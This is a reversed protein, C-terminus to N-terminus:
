EVIYRYEGAPLSEAERGPLELTAICNAPVKIRYEVGNEIKEWASSVEGYISQYSFSAHRVQGGPKPAIRFENEGTITIGCMSEFLWQCMAGKSYHNRSDVATGHSTAEWSEWVTTAGARPM